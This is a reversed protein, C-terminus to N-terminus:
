ATASFPMMRLAHSIQLALKRQGRKSLEAAVVVSEFEAGRARTASSAVRRRPVNPHGQRHPLAGRLSGATLMAAREEAQVFLGRAVGSDCLDVAAAVVRPRQVRRRQEGLSGAGAEDESRAVRARLAQVRPRAAAAGAEVPRAQQGAGQEAREEPWRRVEPIPQHLAAEWPLTRAVRQALGDEPLRDEARAESHEEEGGREALLGRAHAAQELQWPLQAAVEQRRLERPEAEPRGDVQEAVVADDRPQALRPDRQKRAHAAEHPRHEEGQTCM